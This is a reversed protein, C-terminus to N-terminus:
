APAETTFALLKETFKAPTEVMPTHGAGHLVVLRPDPLRREMEHATSLPIIPDRDGWLLLVPCGVAEPQTTRVAAGAAIVADIFGPAAMLPVVISALEPSLADPNSTVARGLLRRARPRRALARRVGERGLLAHSAKIVGIVASLRAGGMPVGAGNALIVRRVRDPRAEAMALTVLGGMSHGAVFVTDLELADALAHMVEAHVSMEGPAPLPDSHGFGPLDIAIVRHHVALTPLCELWWQWACGLGHLLLLPPGDGYDVYRVRRGDIWQDHIHPAWDIHTWHPVRRTTDSATASM